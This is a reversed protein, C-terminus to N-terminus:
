AGMGEYIAKLYRMARGLGILAPEMRNMVYAFTLQRDLDNVVVSGGYGTWWCVRGAPLDPTSENVLGFGLGFRLPLGLVLDVGDAQVEFIRDLTAASLFRPDAHSIAAQVTAVSRANGHGGAAGNEAARFARTGVERVAFIPNSLTKILVSDPAVTSLDIGLGAPPILTAIRGDESAPTGIFYDAGLPGAIEAGFFTGLSDGTIRRVVNGILHGQNIMHYGSATGPEWWPAQAALLDAAAEDDYLEQLTIPEQWGSVGSTHGMLHRILVGEKGNAAFEPWYTSVPADPDLQGREILLLAAFATMTKTLSFTNIITDREWPQGSGVDAIGAWLDVITRGQHIACVSLGVDSGNDISTSMLERVGEHAPECTGHIRAM